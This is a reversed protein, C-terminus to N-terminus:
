KYVALLEDYEKCLVDFANAGAKQALPTYRETIERVRAQRAPDGDPDREFAAKTALSFAGAKSAYDVPSCAAATQAAALSFLAAITLNVITKM